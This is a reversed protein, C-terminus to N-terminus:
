LSYINLHKCCTSMIHCPGAAAAAAAAAAASHSLVWHAQCRLLSERCFAQQEAVPAAALAQKEEPLGVALSAAHMQPHLPDHGWPDLHWEEQGALATPM